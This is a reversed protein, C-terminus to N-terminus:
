IYYKWSSKVDTKKNGEPGCPVPGRDATSLPSLISFDSSDALNVAFTLFLQPSFIKVRWEFPLCVCIKVLLPGERAVQAM